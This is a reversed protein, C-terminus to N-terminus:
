DGHSISGLNGTALVLTGMAPDKWNIRMVTIAAGDYRGSSIDGATIAEDGLIGAVELNDVSLEASEVIASPTFGKAARYTLGSVELDRDHDTFGLVTGDRREIRWLTALTTVDRAIHQALAPPISKM